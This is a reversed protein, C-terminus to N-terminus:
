LRADVSRFAPDDRNYDPRPATFHRPLPAVQSMGNLHFSKWGVATGSRSTGAVQYASLDRVGTGLIGLIHPEVARPHGEYVFALLQRDALAAAIVTRCRSPAM